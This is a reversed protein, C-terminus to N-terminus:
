RLTGRDVQAGAQTQITLWHVAAAVVALAAGYHDMAMKIPERQPSMGARLEVGNLRSLAALPLERVAAALERM